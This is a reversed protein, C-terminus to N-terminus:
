KIWSDKFKDLDYFYDQPDYHESALVLCITGPSFRSLERWSNRPIYIGQNRNNMEFHHNGAENHINIEFSGSIPILFQQLKRHGHLGRVTGEPVDYLYYIRKIEFPVVKETEAFSIGGLHNVLNPIDIIQAKRM